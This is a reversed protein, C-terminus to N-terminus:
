TGLIKHFNADWSKNEVIKELRRAFRRGGPRNVDPHRSIARDM